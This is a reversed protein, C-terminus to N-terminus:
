LKEASFICIVSEVSNSMQALEYSFWEFKISHRGLGGGFMHLCYPRRLLFTPVLYAETGDM